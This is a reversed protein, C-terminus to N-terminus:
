GMMGRRWDKKIRDVSIRAANLKTVIIIGVGSGSGIPVDGGPYSDLLKNKRAIVLNGQADVILSHPQENGEEELMLPM